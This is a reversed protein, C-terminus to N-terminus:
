LCDLHDDIQDRNLGTRYLDKIVGDFRCHLGPTYPHGPTTEMLQTSIKRLECLLAHQTDTM